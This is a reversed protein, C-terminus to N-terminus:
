TARLKTNCSVVPRIIPGIGLVSYSKQRRVTTGTASNLDTCSDPEMAKRYSVTQSYATIDLLGLTSRLERTWSVLAVRTM